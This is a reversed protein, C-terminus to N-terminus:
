NWIQVSSRLMKLGDVLFTMFPWNQVSQVPKTLFITNERLLPGKSLLYIFLCITHQLMLKFPYVEALLSICFNFVQCLISVSNSIECEWSIGANVTKYYQNKFFQKKSFFSPESRCSFRFVIINETSINTTTPANYINNTLGQYFILLM